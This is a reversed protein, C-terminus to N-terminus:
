RTEMILDIVQNRRVDILGYDTLGLEPVTPLSIFSLTMFPARLTVGLEAVAANVVDMKSIVDDMYLTSMLGGFPLPVTAIVDNDCVCTVGGQVRQLEKAALLMDRDNTGVIVINHHDHSISAALAGKKLSFGKVIASSLRGNKGYREVISLKLLDRELDICVADDKVPLWAEERNNIIQDKILSIVRCRAENGKSRIVFSEELLSDPLKVTNMLADSYIKVPIREAKGKDAVIKGGKIVLSPRIIKLNDLLLIDAYRGPTISGIYEEMHFHRAANLTAITIATVPDMGLDVAIQVNYSIHGERVIDQVHKDDTCFMLSDTPLDHELVGSLLRRANRESSGERIFICMGVRLRDRLEEFTVCEHDDALHGSAYVNLEQKSLGIAHGNCLKRRDLTSLIKEIYEDRYQLIKSPDMEGLSVSNQRDMLESVERAGLIGGTTEMGPATPVRSPIQLYTRFPLSDADDVLAELGEKGAVNAIEMADLMMTTTGWPAIAEGLAEPTLLTTEIHVHSDIFGPVAFRGKGDIKKLYKPAEPDIAVIRGNYVGISSNDRIEKTYVDVLRINDILLDFPIEGAAAQLQKKMTQIRKYDIRNM